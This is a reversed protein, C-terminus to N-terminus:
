RNTQLKESEREASQGPGKSSHGKWQHVAWIDINEEAAKGFMFM